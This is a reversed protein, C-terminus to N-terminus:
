PILFERAPSLKFDCMYNIVTELLVRKPDAYYPKQKEGFDKYEGEYRFAWTFMNEEEDSVAFVVKFGYQERLPVIKRWVDLFENWTGPKISYRRMIMTTGKIDEETVKDLMSEIRVKRIKENPYVHTRAEEDLAAKETDAALRKQAENLDGGCTYIWTLKPEDGQDLNAHLTHIGYKKMLSVERRWIELYADIHGPQITFRHLITATSKDQHKM